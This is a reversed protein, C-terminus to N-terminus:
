KIVVKKGNVIYLGKTPQAVKRGQLDYYGNVMFQSDKVENIGTANGGFDINLEPASTISSALLYAKGAPITGANLKKFKGDNLGYAQDATVATASVAAQLLNSASIDTGTAAVPIDYSDAATAVLILGTNPAVAETVEEATVQTATMNTVKYAKLGSPLNACDLAYASAITSYGSSAITVPVNAGGTRQLIVYDLSANSNWATNNKLALCMGEPVIIDTTSVEDYYATSAVDKVITKGTSILNVGDWLMIDLVPNGSNPNNCNLKLTYTGASLATTYIYGGVGLRVAAGNSARETSTGDDRKTVITLDECEFFYDIADTTSYVVNKTPDASTINYGFYSAGSAGSTTQYWTGTKNFAKPFFATKTDGEFQSGSIIEQILAETGDIANITYTWSDAERFVLTIVNSAADAVATIPENGSKYIYKKGGTYISETYDDANVTAGELTNIIVDDKITASTEDKFHVTCTTPTADPVDGDVIERVVINDIAFNSNYRKTVFTINGLGGTSSPSAVIDRAFVVSADSTKTITLYTVADKRSVKASFWSYNGITSTSPNNNDTSGTGALTVVQTSSGNIKWDASNKGTNVLSFIKESNAADYINFEVPNQDNSTTIRFDFMLTFDDGAAAKGSLINGTVICGNNHRATQTVSLFYNDSENLIVPDYRGGVSTSWGTTTSTSTYPESFPTVAAWAGNAGLCLGAAVLLTKTLLQKIKM